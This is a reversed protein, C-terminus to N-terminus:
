MYIRHMCMLVLTAERKEKKGRPIVMWTSWTYFDWDVRENGKRRHQRQLGGGMDAAQRGKRGGAVKCRLEQLSYDLQISQLTTKPMVLFFLM